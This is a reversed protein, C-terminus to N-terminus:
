DPVHSRTKACESDSKEEDPPLGISQCGIAYWKGACVEGRTNIYNKIINGRKMVILLGVDEGSVFTMM